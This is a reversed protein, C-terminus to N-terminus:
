NYRSVISSAQHSMINNHFIIYNPKMRHIDIVFLECQSTVNHIMNVRPMPNSPFLNNSAILLPPTPLKNENLLAMKKGVHPM